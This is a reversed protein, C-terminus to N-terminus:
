RGSKLFRVLDEMYFYRVSACLDEEGSYIRSTGDRLVFGMPYNVNPVYGDGINFENPKMLSESNHDLKWPEELNLGFMAGEYVVSRQSRDVKHYIGFWMDDLKEVPPGTGTIEGYESRIIRHANGWHILDPSYSVWIGPVSIDPYSSPRTLAAYYMEPNGLEDKAHTSPVKEPFPIVDKIGTFIPRPTNDGLPLRDFKKFDKTIVISTSVGTVNHPSVYTLLYDNNFKVIRFDEMGFKEHDYCPYLSPKDEKWDIKRGDESIAKIPYSIHRLRTTGDKLKVDTKNIELLDKKEIVDFEICFDSDPKNEVRLYPLLVHNRPEEVPSEAVRIMLLTKEIGYEEITTVGPNFTGVVKMKDSSPTFDEPSAIIEKYFPEPIKM